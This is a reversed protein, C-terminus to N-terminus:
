KWATSGAYMKSAGRIKGKEERPTRRKRLKEEDKLV